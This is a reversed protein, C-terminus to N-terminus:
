RKADKNKEKESKRRNYEKILATKMADLTRTLNYPKRKFLESQCDYIDNFVFGFAQEFTDSYAITSPNNGIGDEIGELLKLSTLIETMGM